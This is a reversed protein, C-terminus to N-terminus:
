HIFRHISTDDFAAFRKGRQMATITKCNGVFELFGRQDGTGLARYPTM